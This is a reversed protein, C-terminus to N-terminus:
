ATRGLDQLEKLERSGSEIEVRCMREATTPDCRIWWWALDGCNHTSGDSMVFGPVMDSVHFIGGMQGTPSRKVIVPSLDSLVAALDEASKDTLCLRPEVRAKKPNDPDGTDQLIFVDRRFQPHFDYTKM